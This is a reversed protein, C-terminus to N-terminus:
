STFRRWKMWLIQLMELLLELSILSTNVDNEELKEDNLEIKGMSCEYDGYQLFLM